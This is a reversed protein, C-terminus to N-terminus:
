LRKTEHRRKSHQDPMIPMKTVDGVLRDIEDVIPQRKIAKEKRKVLGSLIADPNEPAHAAKNKEPLITVCNEISRHGSPCEEQETHLPQVRQVENCQYDDRYQLRSIEAQVPPGENILIVIELV